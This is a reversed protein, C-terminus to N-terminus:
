NPVVRPLTDDALPAAGVRLTRVNRMPPQGFFRAYERSFQSPSEYGVEYAATAADIGESLMRERATHLRLQKQYQLPSMSTLQRFHHHFTSVGMNAIEALQEVRLPKAFNARLWGVAKATRNGQEGHTAISRLHSGLPGCLVRYLIERQILGSLFGIEQPSDLLAELRLCADFLEATTRAVAMGSAGAPPTVFSIEQQSLIERVLSMNIRLVVGMEPCEPSAEIIQSVVPLDISTLLYTTGDCRISENGLTIRKAGQLFVILTPEYTASNCPSVECHRFFGFDPVECLTIGDSTVRRSVRRTLEARLAEPTRLSSGASLAVTPDLASILPFVAM